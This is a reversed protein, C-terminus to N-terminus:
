RGGRGDMSRQYVTQQVRGFRDLIEEKRSAAIGLAILDVVALQCLRSVMSGSRFPLENSLALLFVHSALALRSCPSGVISVVQAGNDKAVQMSELIDMTEGSHSICLVLDGAGLGNAFFIQEHPDVFSWARVGVRLLKQQADNAVLGSAGVGFCGVRSSRGILEVAAELRDVELFRLTDKFSQICDHFYRGAVAALSDEPELAEFLNSQRQPLETAIALKLEGFGQFGLAKAMRTITTESCNAAAAMEAITMTTVGRPDALILDAAAREAPRLSSRLMRLKALVEQDQASIPYHM